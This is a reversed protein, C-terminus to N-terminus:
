LKWWGDRQDEELLKEPDGYEGEATYGLLHLIQHHRVEEQSEQVVMERGCILVQVRLGEYQNLREVAQQIQRVFRRATERAIKGQLALEDLGDFILLSREESKPDLPPEPLYRDRGAFDGLSEVLDDSLDFHHLPILIVQLDSRSALDAAFIKAFSSKGSGPGGSLVRIADKPDGKKVWDLLAPQM